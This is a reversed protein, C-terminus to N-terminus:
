ESKEGHIYDRQIGALLSEPRTLQNAIEKQRQTYQDNDLLLKHFKVLKIQKKTPKWWPLMDKYQELVRKPNVPIKICNEIKIGKYFNDEPHTLYMLIWHYLDLTVARLQEVPRGTRKSLEKILDENTVKIVLM